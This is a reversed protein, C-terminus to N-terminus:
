RSTAHDTTCVHQVHLRDDRCASDIANTILLAVLDAAVDSIPEPPQARQQQPAVTVTARHETDLQSSVLPAAAISQEAQHLEELERQLEAAEESSLMSSLDNLEEQLDTVTHTAVLGLAAEGPEAVDQAAAAVAESEPEWEPVVSALEAQMPAEAADEQEVEATAQAPVTGAPAPERLHEQKMTEMQTQPHRHDAQLTSNRDTLSELAATSKAYDEELRAHKSKLEALEIRLLAAVDDEPSRVVADAEASRALVGGTAKIAGEQTTRIDAHQQAIYLKLTDRDAAMLEVLHELEAVTSIAHEVAAETQSASHEAVARAEKEANVQAELDLVQQKASAQAAGLALMASKTWRQLVRVTRSNAPVLNGASRQQLSTAIDKAITQLLSLDHQDFEGTPSVGPVRNIVELVGIIGHRDLRPAHGEDTTEVLQLPVCLSSRTRTGRRADVTSTARYRESAYVQGSSLPAAQRACESQIAKASLPIEWKSGSEAAGFRPKLGPWTQAQLRQGDDSVLFITCHTARLLEAVAQECAQMTAGGRLEASFQMARSLLSSVHGPPLISRAATTSIKEVSDPSVAATQLQKLSRECTALAAEVDSSTISFRFFKSYAALRAQLVRLEDVTVELRCQADQMQLYLEHSRSSLRNAQGLQLRAGEEMELLSNPPIRSTQLLGASASRPRGRRRQSGPSRIPDLQVAPARIAGGSSSSSSVSGGGSAVVM